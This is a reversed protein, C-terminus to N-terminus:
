CNVSIDSEPSQTKKLGLLPTSIAKATLEANGGGKLDRNGPPLFHLGCGGTASPHFCKL